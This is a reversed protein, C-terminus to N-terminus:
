VALAHEFNFYDLALLTDKHSGGWIVSYHSQYNLFVVNSHVIHNPMDKSDEIESEITSSVLQLCEGVGRKNLRFADSSIFASIWARIDRQM